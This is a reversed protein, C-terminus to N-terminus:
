DNQKEQEREWDAYLKEFIESAGDPLINKDYWEEMWNIPIWDNKMDAITKRIVGCWKECHYDQYEDCTGCENPLNNDIMQMIEQPTEDALVSDYQNEDFYIRTKEDDGRSLLLIMDSNLYSEYVKNEYTNHIKIFNSM